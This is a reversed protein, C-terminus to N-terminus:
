NGRCIFHRKQTKDMIDTLALSRDFILIEDVILNLYKGNINRGINLKGFAGGTSDNTYTFETGFKVGDIYLTWTKVSIDRVAIISYEQNNVLNTNFTHFNNNGAGNEHGLMIDGTSRVDMMYLYNLNEAEGDGGMQIIQADDTVSLIKARAIITIDGTVILSSDNGCDVYDNSGDFFLSSSMKGDTYVAGNITGDNGYGSYDKAIAGTPFPFHQALVQGSQPAPMPLRQPLRTLKSTLM